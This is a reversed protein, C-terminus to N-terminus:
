IPSKFFFIKGCYQKTVPNFCCSFFVNIASNWGFGKNQCFAQMHNLFFFLLGLASYKSAYSVFIHFKDGTLIYAGHSILINNTGWQQVVVGKLECFLVTTKLGELGLVLYYEILYQADWFSKAGISWLQQCTGHQFDFCFVKFIMLVDKLFLLLCM